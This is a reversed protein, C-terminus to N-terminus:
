RVTVIYLTGSEKSDACQESNINSKCAIGCKGYADCSSNNCHDCKKECHTGYFGHDCYGCVLLSTVESCGKNNACKKRRNTWGMICADCIADNHCIKCNEQCRQQCIEGYYGDECELCKSANYCLKCVVPCNPDCENGYKGNNCGYLCNGNMDCTNSICANDCKKECISGYFINNKCQTCVDESVCSSCNEPCKFCKSEFLFWPNECKLCQIKQIGDIFGCHACSGTVASCAQDCNEGFWGDKCGHVCTQNRFCTSNLCNTSCEELCLQGYRGPVCRECQGTDKDCEGQLDCYKSCKRNCNIGYFGTSCLYCNGSRVDCSGNGGCSDSCKQACISGFYGDECVECNYGDQSCQRCKSPCTENCKSGSYGKKCQECNGNKRDCSDGDCNPSCTNNCFKGYFDKLCNDCVGSVKECSGNCKGLCTYNCHSGYYGNSCSQCEESTQTCVNDLCTTPCPMSCNKNYFGTKCSCYGSTKDCRGHCGVSCNLECRNGFFGNKCELCDGTDSNCGRENCFKSCREKCFNGYFGKRCVCNGTIKDCEKDCGPQCISSCNKGYTGRTCEFHQFEFVQLTTNRTSVIELYTGKLPNRCTMPVTKYFIYTTNQRLRLTIYIRDIETSRKLQVRVFPNVYSVEVSTNVDGDLIQYNMENEVHGQYLTNARQCKNKTSGSWGPLCETCTKNCVVCHCVCTGNSWCQRTYITFTHVLCYVLDFSFIPYVAFIYAILATGM